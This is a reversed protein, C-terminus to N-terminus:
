GFAIRMPSTVSPSSLSSVMLPSFNSMKSSIATFESRKAWIYGSVASAGTQDLALRRCSVDNWVEDNEELLWGERLTHMLRPLCTVPTLRREGLTDVALVLDEYELQWQEERLVARIGVITEPALVEIVTEGGSRFLM